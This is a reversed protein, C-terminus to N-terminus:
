IDVTGWVRVNVHGGVWVDGREDRRLSIEAARGLAAGQSARYPMALRGTDHLWQAAAGNLSGTAPDEVIAGTGDAFFGRVELQCPSSDPYIGLVGVDLDFCPGPPKDLGLVAEADALLLMIWGPGNDGWKADVISRREIGLLSALELLKSEEVPGDRLLAPSIFSLFGSSDSRQGDLGGNGSSPDAVRLPVLGIASEQVVLGPEKSVGGGALWAQCSGLSPHGAFPIERPVTFIRVRYDATPDTPALLFTTESLGTWRAFRHMESTTLGDADLVCALPNGSFSTTSFVDLQSFRRQM